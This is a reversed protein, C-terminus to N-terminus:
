IIVEKFEWRNSKNKRWGHVVIKIGAARVLHLNEHDNIKKVRASLNSYSTTQVGIVENMGLCLIDIFGCFDNRRKTFSNYREVVEAYYGRDRMAKLSRVTPSSM